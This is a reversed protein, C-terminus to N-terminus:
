KNREGLRLGNGHRSQQLGKRLVLIIGTGSLVLGAALLALLTKSRVTRSPPGDSEGVVQESRVAASVGGTTGKGPDLAVLFRTLDGGDNGSSEGKERARARANRDRQIVNMTRSLAVKSVTEREQPPWDRDQPQAEDAALKQAKAYCKVAEEYRNLNSQVDGMGLLTDALIAPRQALRKDDILEAYYKSARELDVTGAIHEADGPTHQWRSLKGRRRHLDALKFIVDQRLQPLLDVDTLVTEYKQIAVDPKFDPGGVNCYNNADRLLEIGRAERAQEAPDAQVHGSADVVVGGLSAALLLLSMGM